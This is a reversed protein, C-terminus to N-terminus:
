KSICTIFILIIWVRLHIRINTNSALNGGKQLSSHHLKNTKSQSYETSLIVIMYHQQKWFSTTYELIKLNDLTWKELISPAKNHCTTTDYAELLSNWTNLSSETCIGVWILYIGLKRESSETYHGSAWWDAVNRRVVHCYQGSAWWTDLLKLCNLTANTRVDHCCTRVIKLLELLIRRELADTLVVHCYQGSALWQEVLLLIEKVSM